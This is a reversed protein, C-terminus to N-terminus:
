SAECIRLGAALQDAPIPQGIYAGRMLYIAHTYYVAGDSSAYAIGVWLMPYFARDNRITAVNSLVDEDTLSLSVGHTETNGPFIFSGWVWQSASMLKDKFRKPIAFVGGKPALLYLEAFVQVKFAPSRGANTARVEVTTTYGGNLPSFPETFIIESNPAVWPRQDAIFNDRNIRNAETSAAAGERAANAAMTADNMGSRMYLLQWFFLGAQGFGVAVLWATFFGAADHSVWDWISSPEKHTTESSESKETSYNNAPSHRSAIGAQFILFGFLGLFALALAAVKFRDKM